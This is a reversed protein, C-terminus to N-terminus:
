DQCYKRMRIEELKNKYEALNNILSLLEEKTYRFSCLSNNYCNIVKLIAKEYKGIELEINCIYEDILKYEFKSYYRITNETSEKVNEVDDNNNITIWFSNGIESNYKVSYHNLERNHQYQQYQDLIEKVEDYNNNM